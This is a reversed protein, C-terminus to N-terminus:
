RNIAVYLGIIGLFLYPYELEKIWRGKRWVNLRRAGFRLFLEVLLVYVAAGFLLTLSVFTGIPVKPQEVLQFFAVIFAVVPTTFILFELGVIVLPTRIKLKRVYVSEFLHFALIFIVLIIIAAIDPSVGIRNWLTDWWDDVAEKIQAFEEKV